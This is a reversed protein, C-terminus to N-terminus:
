NGPRLQAAPAHTPRPASAALQAVAARDSPPLLEPHQLRDPESVINRIERRITKHCRCSVGELEDLDLISIKRRQLDLVRREKMWQLSTTVTPRRLGLLGAVTGQSFCLEPSGTMYWATLLWRALREEASHFANCAAIQGAVVLQVHVFRLLTDSLSPDERMLTTLDRSDIRYARGACLSIARFPGHPVGLVCQLGVMGARGVLGFGGFKPDGVKAQGSIAGEEVFYAGVQASHSDALIQRPRLEVLQCRELLLARSEPNLRRILFNAAMGLLDERTGRGQLRTKRVASVRGDAPYRKQWGFRQRLAMLVGHDPIAVARGV